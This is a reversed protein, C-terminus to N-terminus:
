RTGEKAPRALPVDVLEWVVRVRSVKRRRVMGLGALAELRRGVIASTSQLVRAIEATSREEAEVVALLVSQSPGTM